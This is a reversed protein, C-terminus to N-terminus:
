GAAQALAWRREVMVRASLDHHHIVPADDFGARVGFQEFLAPPM